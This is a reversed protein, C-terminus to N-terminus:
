YDKPMLNISSPLGLEEGYVSLLQNLYNLDSNRQHLEKQKKAAEKKEFVCRRWDILYKELSTSFDAYELICIPIDIADGYTGDWYKFHVRLVPVREKTQFIRFEAVRQTNLDGLEGNYIKLVHQPLTDFVFEFLKRFEEMDSQTLPVFLQPLRHKDSSDTYDDFTLAALFSLKEVNCLDIPPKM